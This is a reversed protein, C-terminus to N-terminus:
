NVSDLFSYTKFKGEVFNAVFSLMLTQCAVSALFGGTDCAVFLYRHRCVFINRSHQQHM